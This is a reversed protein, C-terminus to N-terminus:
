SSLEQQLRQQQGQVIRAIEDMNQGAQQVMHELQRMQRTMTNPPEKTNYENEAAHNSNEELRSLWKWVGDIEKSYAKNWSKPYSGYMHQQPVSMSGLQRDVRAVKVAMYVNILVLFLVSLFILQSDTPLSAHEMVLNFIDALGRSKEHKENDIPEVKAHARHKRREKKKRKGEPNNKDNEQMYKRMAADLDKYYSLQGDISAKEITSKLWSSKFFDVLVTVLVRVQGQTAWTICVRTKIHFSGGAPVDPTQTTTLQTIYKNLDLHLIEEKLLCTTSRPGIPGSLPKVYSIDRTYQASGDDKQWQSINIDSTKQVTALFQGLFGSNYLLNYVKQITGDYTQDMVTHPFHGGNKSCQCDTQKQLQGETEPEHLEQNAIFKTRSHLEVDSSSQQQDPETGESPSRKPITLSVASRQRENKLLFDPNNHMSVNEEIDTESFEESAPDSEDASHDGENALNSDGTNTIKSTTTTILIANPIFFATARKKIDIIDSFAILLNTVYGFINSYFSIHHESIYMRGHLLIDKQLACGYDEILVDETPISRFLTHFDNNRKPSATDM